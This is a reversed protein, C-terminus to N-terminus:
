SAIWLTSQATGMKKTLVNDESDYESYIYYVLLYFSQGESLLGKEKTPDECKGFFEVPVLTDKLTYGGYYDNWLQQNEDKPKVSWPTITDLIKGTPLLIDIDYIYITTDGSLSLSFNIQDYLGLSEDYLVLEYEDEITLIISSGGVSTSEQLDIIDVNLFLIGVISSGVIVLTLILLVSLIPSIARRKKHIINKLSM